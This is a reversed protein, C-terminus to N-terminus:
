GHPTGRFEETTAHGPQSVGSATLIARATLWAIRMDLGFSLHDVYWTDLAFKEEWNLANRGNVQAWGSIGPRVAHRRMQEPTYLPLYKMLLPRPGVLSMEGRVVNLLEPMEDLSTRRLVRGLRTLREGDALPRGAGDVADRMTRFKLM